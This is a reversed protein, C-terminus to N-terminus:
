FSVGVGVMVSLVAVTGDLSKTYKLKDGIPLVHTSAKMYLRFWGDIVTSAGGTFVVGTLSLSETDSYGAMDIEDYNGWLDAYSFSGELVTVETNFTYFGIGLGGWWASSGDSERNYLVGITRYTMDYANVQTGEFVGVGYDDFVMTSGHLKLAGLDQRGIEAHLGWKPTFHLRFETAFGPGGIMEDETGMTGYQVGGNVSFRQQEAAPAAGAALLLTLSIYSFFAKM